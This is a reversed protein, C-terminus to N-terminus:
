PKERQWGIGGGPLTGRDCLSDPPQGAPRGVV